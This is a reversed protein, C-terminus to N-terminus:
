CNYSKAAGNEYLDVCVHNGMMDYFDTGSVISGSRQGSRVYSRTGNSWTVACGNSFTNGDQCRISVARIQGSPKTPAKVPTKSKLPIKGSRKLASNICTFKYGNRDVVTKGKAIFGRTPDSPDIACDGPNHKPITASIQLSSKVEALKKQLQVFETILSKYTPFIVSWRSAWVNRFQSSM